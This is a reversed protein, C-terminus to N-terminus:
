NLWTRRVICKLIDVDGTNENCKGRFRQHGCQRFDYVSLNEFCFVRKQNFIKVLEKNGKYYALKGLNTQEEVWDLLERRTTWIGGEEEAEENPYLSHMQDSDM